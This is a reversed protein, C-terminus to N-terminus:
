GSKQHRRRRLRRITVIAWAVAAAVVAWPLLFGVITVIMALAMAILGVFGHVAASLPAWTSGPALNASPSYAITVDSLAVRQRLLALESQMADLDGQAKALTTAADVFDSTKGPRHLLADQLRDRLAAQAKLHANMDVIQVSLDESTVRASSIHGGAGKTDDALEAKFKSIWAISAKLTLQGNIEDSGSQEISTGTVECVTSGASECAAQNKEILARLHSAPAEVGFRFDYALMPGSATAEPTPTPPKSGPKETSASAAAADANAQSGAPKGCGALAVLALVIALARM